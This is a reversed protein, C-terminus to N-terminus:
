ELKFEDDDVLLLSSKIKQIERVHQMAKNLAVNEIADLAGYFRFSLFGNKALCRNYQQSSMNMLEALESKKLGIKIRFDEVVDARVVDKRRNRKRFKKPEFIGM